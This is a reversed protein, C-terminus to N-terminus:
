RAELESYSVAATLPHYTNLIFSKGISLRLSIPECLGDPDFRWVHVTTKGTGLWAETNWRQLSLSIDGDLTLTRRDDDGGTEDSTPPLAHGERVVVGARAFPLLRVVGERFELAYPTQHLIAITRAQKAMVEIKGAADRLAREDSSFVMLGIAGGMMVAAIALVVVMEILTFGARRDTTRAASTM